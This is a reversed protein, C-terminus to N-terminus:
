KRVEDVAKLLTTGPDVQWRYTDSNNLPPHIRYTIGAALKVRDESPFQASVALSRDLERAVYRRM